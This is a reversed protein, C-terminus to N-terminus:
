RGPRRASGKAPNSRLAPHPLPVARPREMHGVLMAYATPGMIETLEERFYRWAPEGGVFAEPSETCWWAFENGGSGWDRRKWERLTSIVHGNDEVHDELRVPVQWCVDPKWDMPREGAELAAIHFACGTGAPFGPPNHFICAGNVTRTKTQGDDDKETWGHRKAETFNAWHRAELRKVAAGVSTRDERDLFHAGFSCCGQSLEPTKEEHIGCCGEGFICKYPSAFFTADIMWTREEDPDEFSIWEHALDDAPV